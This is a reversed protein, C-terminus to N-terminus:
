VACRASVVCKGAAVATDYAVCTLCFGVGVFTCGQAIGAVVVKKVQSKETDTHVCAGGPTPIPSTGRM